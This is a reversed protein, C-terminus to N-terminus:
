YRMKFDLFGIASLKTAADDEEGIGFKAVILDTNIKGLYPHRM